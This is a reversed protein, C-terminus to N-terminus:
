KMSCNEWIEEKLLEEIENFYDLNLLKWYNKNEKRNEKITYQIETQFKRYANKISKYLACKLTERTADDPLRVLPTIIGNESIQSMMKNDCAKSKDNKYNNM